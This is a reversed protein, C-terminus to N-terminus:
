GALLPLHLGFRAGGGDRNSVSLRGGHAEVITSAIALGLGAGEGSRASDAQHFREFIRAEDGPPIGPGRDAVTLEAEGVPEDIRLALEVTGAGHRM